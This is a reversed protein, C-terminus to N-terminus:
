HVAVNLGGERLFDAIQTPPLEYQEVRNVEEYNLSKDSAYNAEVEGSFGKGALVIDSAAVDGVLGVSAKLVVVKLTVASEHLYGESGDPLLVKLWGGSRNREVIKDGYSLDKLAPAWHAPQSRVKALKTEVYVVRDGQEQAAAM